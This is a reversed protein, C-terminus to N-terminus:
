DVRRARVGFDVNDETWDIWTSQKAIPKDAQYITSDNWTTMVAASQTWIKIRRRPIETQWAKATVPNTYLLRITINRSYREIPSLDIARYNTKGNKTVDPIGDSVMVVSIPNMILRKNRITTAIQEFFANFDTFDNQKDKPFIEQLRQYIEEVSLGKFIHIPYFAKPEGPEAGGISSVFLVKPEELEGLGNMHAYIYHSLFKLSEEFHGSNIYSGSIDVGIFMSLRPEQEGEVTCATTLSLLLAICLLCLSTTFNKM